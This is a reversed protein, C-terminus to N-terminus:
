NENKQKLLKNLGSTFKKWEDLLANLHKRGKETIRYYKRPPVGQEVEKWFSELLNESEFKHLAQYTNGEKLILVGNTRKKLERIIEYGYMERENILSLLSLKVSGKRINSIWKEM